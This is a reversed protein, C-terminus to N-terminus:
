PPDAGVTCDLIEQHACGVDVQCSDITCPDLDDCTTGAVVECGDLVHCADLTCFDGDICPLTLDIVQVFYSSTSVFVRHGRVAVGRPTGNIPITAVTVPAEPTAIDLIVLGDKSALLLYGEFFAVDYIEAPSSGEFLTQMVTTDVLRYGDRTSAVVAIVGQVAVVAEAFSTPAEIGSLTGVVAPELPTTIDFAQLSLDGGALFLQNGAGIAVDFTKVDLESLATQSKPDTPTELDISCVGGTFMAAYIVPAYPHHAMGYLVVGPSHTALVEPATPDDVNVVQFGTSSSIHLHEGVGKILARRPVSVHALDISQGVSGDSADTIMVMQPTLGDSVDVISFETDGGSQQLIYGHDGTFVAHGTTGGDAPPSVGVQSSTVSCDFLCEEGGVWATECGAISECVDSWCPDGQDCLADKPTRICGDSLSCEDETCAVGDDCASALPTYICQAVPDCTDETCDILDDCVLPTGECVVDNGCVDDVTCVNDDDCADGGEAATWAGQSSSPDCRKCPAEPELEGDAYCEGDIFCADSVPLYVCAGDEIVASTCAGGDNCSSGACLADQSCLDNITSSDGDDCSTGASVVTWGMTSANSDCRKCPSDPSETGAAYCGGDIFCTDLEQTIVCAGDVVEADICPPEGDCVVGACNGVADCQDGETQPNEDDCPTGQAAPDSPCMVDDHSDNCVFLASGGCDPHATICDIKLNPWDEDTLDDCDNDVGDCRESLKPSRTPDDPACDDADQVGDGDDDDDCAPLRGDSDMDDSVGFVCVLVETSPACTFEAVEVGQAECDEGCCCLLDAVEDNADLQPALCDGDADSEEGALSFVLFSELADIKGDGDSDPPDEYQDAVEAYDSLGDGDSDALTIMTGLKAELENILGDLDEDAAPEYCTSEYCLNSSCEDDAACAQGSSRLTSPPEACAGVLAISVLVTTFWTRM